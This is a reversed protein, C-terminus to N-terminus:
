RVCVVGCLIGVVVKHDMRVVKMRRLYGVLRNRYGRKMVGLCWEEESM